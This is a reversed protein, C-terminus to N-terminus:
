WMALWILRDKKLELASTITDPVVTFRIREIRQAGLAVAPM